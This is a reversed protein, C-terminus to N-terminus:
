RQQQEQQGQDIPEGKQDFQQQEQQGKEKDFQDFAPKGGQEGIDQTKDQNKEFENM